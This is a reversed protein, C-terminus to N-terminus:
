GPASRAAGAQASAAKARPSRESLFRRVWDAIRENDDPQDLSLKAQEVQADPIQGRRREALAKAYEVTFEPHCQFSIAPQDTYALVANPTFHSGAVVRANPPRVVVQDQHSVPATIEMVRDMWPEPNQVSYRHLGLGWGKDSKKVEGGFAQAMVQHGFCVGALATRGKVSRLYDMLEIIWADGDYVGSPSGTILLADFSEPTKPLEGKQVEFVEYAVGDEGVFRKMMDAYSGHEEILHPPPYGTELIAIRM